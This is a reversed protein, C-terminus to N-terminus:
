EKKDGALQADPKTDPMVDAFQEFSKLVHEALAKKGTSLAMFYCTLATMGNCTKLLAEILQAPYGMAHRNVAHIGGHVYSSLHPWHHKKIELLPEVMKEPATNQLHKLMESLMPINSAKKASHDDLQTSLKEVQADTAAFQIWKARVLAEFQLRVLTVASTFNGAGCLIKVSQAHELSVCCLVHTVRNRITDAYMPQHIVLGIIQEYENTRALLKNLDSM